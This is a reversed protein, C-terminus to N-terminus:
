ARVRLGKSPGCAVPVLHKKTELSVCRAFARQTLPTPFGGPAHNAVSRRMRFLNSSGPTLDGFVKRRSPLEARRFASQEWLGLISPPQSGVLLRDM